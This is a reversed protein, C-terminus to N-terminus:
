SAAALSKEEYVEVGPIQADGKMARVVQGIKKEDPVLFERPLASPDAIRYKWVSRTAIGAVKPAETQIVPAVVTQAQEALQEAKEAQGKAEAAAARRELREREKRAAEEAKRQAERRIREQEQQYSVILSKLRREYADLKGTIRDRFFAIIGKKEVELPQTLSKQAAEAQKQVAKVERLLAAAQEMDADSTVSIGDVTLNSMLAEIQRVADNHELNTM